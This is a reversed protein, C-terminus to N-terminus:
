HYDQYDVLIADQEEFRFTLRWNGNVKVAWHDALEQHLPHLNWGPLNMGSPSTARNLTALQNELKRAHAPNIGAKSGDRFLRELGAHKFSKIV